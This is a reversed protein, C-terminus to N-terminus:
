APREYLVRGRQLIETVLVDGAELAARLEAPTMVLLDLPFQRPRLQRAVALHREEPMLATDLEVLLDVDSDPSPTGYAFYGFLIIRRPRVASVVRAVAAPLSAAVPEAMGRPVVNLVEPSATAVVM